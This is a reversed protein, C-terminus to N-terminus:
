GAQFIAASYGQIEIAATQREQPVLGFQVGDKATLSPGRLGWRRLRDAAAFREPLTLHIADKGKNVFALM